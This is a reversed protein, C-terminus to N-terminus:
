DDQAYIQLSFCKTLEFLKLGYSTQNLTTVCDYESQIYTKSVGDFSEAVVSKSVEGGYSYTRQPSNAAPNEPDIPQYLNDQSKQILYLNHAMHLFVCKAGFSPNYEANDYSYLGIGSFDKNYKIADHAVRFLLKDDLNFFEGDYFHKFDEIVVSAKIVNLSISDTM